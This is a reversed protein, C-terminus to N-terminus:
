LSHRSKKSARSETDSSTPVVSEELVGINGLVDGHLPLYQASDNNASSPTDACSNPSASSNSSALERGAATSTKMLLCMRKLLEDARQQHYHMQEILDLVACHQDDMGPGESRSRKFADRRLTDRETCRSKIEIQNTVCGGITNIGNQPQFEVCFKKGGNKSSLCAIRIEVEAVGTTEAIAIDKSTKMKKQIDMIYEGDEDLLCCKLPLSRGLLVKKSFVNGSKSAGVHQIRIKVNKGRVYGLKPLDQIIELRSEVVYMDTLKTAGLVRIDSMDKPTVKNDKCIFCIEVEENARDRSLREPTVVVVAEGDRGFKEGNFTFNDPYAFDGVTVIQFGILTDQGDVRRQNEDLLHIKVPIPEGLLPFRPLKSIIEISYIRPCQENRQPLM